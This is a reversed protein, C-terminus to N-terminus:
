RRRFRCTELKHHVLLAPVNDNQPKQLCEHANSNAHIHYDSQIEHDNEPMGLAFQIWLLHHQWTKSINITTTTHPSQRDRIPIATCSAKHSKQNMATCCDSPLRWVKVADDISNFLYAYKEVGPIGMTTSESGLSLVLWDYEM